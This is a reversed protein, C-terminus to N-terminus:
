IFSEKLVTWPLLGTTIRFLSIMNRSDDPRLPQPESLGQPLARRGDTTALAGAAHPAARGPIESPTTPADPM